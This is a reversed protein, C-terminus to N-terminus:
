SHSSLIAGKTESLKFITSDTSNILFYEILLDVVKDERVERLLIIETEVTITEGPLVQYFSDSLKLNVLIESELDAKVLIFSLMFIGILVILLCPKLVAWKEDLIAM